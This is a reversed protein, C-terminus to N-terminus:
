IMPIGIPAALITITLILGVIMLVLGLVAAVLRGTLGLILALLRWIAWFPWLLIPVRREKHTQNM